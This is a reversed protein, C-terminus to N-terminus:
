LYGPDWPYLPGVKEGEESPLNALLDQIKALMEEEQSSLNALDKKLLLRDLATKYEEYQETVQLM